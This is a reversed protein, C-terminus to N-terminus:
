GVSRSLNRLVKFETNDRLLYKSHTLHSKALGHPVTPIAESELALPLPNSVWDRCM